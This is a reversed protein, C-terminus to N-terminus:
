HTGFAAICFENGEPDAMVKWDFGAVDHDELHAGGLEVIRAVAADLDPVVTDLHVRNRGPTPRDVQQLAVSVGGPHQPEFWCFFGPFERSTPVGLLASWFAKSREYDRVNIVVAGVKVVGDTM